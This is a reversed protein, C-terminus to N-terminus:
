LFVSLLFVSLLLLPPLSHPSPLGCYIALSFFMLNCYSKNQEINLPPLSKFMNSPKSLPSPSVTVTYWHSPIVSLVLNRLCITLTNLTYIFLLPFM